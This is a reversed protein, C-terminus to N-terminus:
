GIFLLGFHGGMQVTSGPTLKLIVKENMGANLIFPSSLLILRDM